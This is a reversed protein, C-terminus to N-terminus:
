QTNALARQKNWVLLAVQGVTTAQCVDDESVDLKFEETLAQPARMSWIMNVAPRPSIPSRLTINSIPTETIGAYVGIVKAALTKFNADHRLTAIGAKANVEAEKRAAYERGIVVDNSNTKDEVFAVIDDVTRLQDMQEKVLRVDFASKLANQIKLRSIYNDVEPLVAPADPPLFRQTRIIDEVEKIVLDTTAFTKQQVPEIMRLVEPFAIGVHVCDSIAQEIKKLARADKIKGPLRDEPKLGLVTRKIRNVQRETLQNIIATTMFITESNNDQSVVVYIELNVM